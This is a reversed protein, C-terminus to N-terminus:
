SIKFEKPTVGYKSKFATSFYNPSSFGTAYAIESINLGTSKLMEKARELRINNIHDSVSIGLIAKTKRYLQVRSMHLSDALEEVSLSSDNFSDTIFNNLKKLFEQESVGFGGEEIKHINNTYYYRLKERNYLLSNIAQTLMRLNFPKTLYLDAGSQLAKIYSEQNDLATLIITPIHSTRLDRKLIECVEFGDKEPLNLDCVIIDPVIELASEITKKGDSTFVNYQGSFRDSLFELLELNDEIFLISYKEEDKNKNQVTSIVEFDSCDTDNIWELSQENIIEKDNLHGKGKPLSIVFETGNKSSVEIKGKHLDVFNKSLYLGIGSSNRYNNSGQYFAEFVNKMEKDPIGIGSDKFYIKVSGNQTEERIKISIEGNDPTFKFANSLLNFYVKDMLNRDLYLETEENTTSVTFNINRKKAEREFDNFIQKSFSYINTKSARIAFERDEIKRYDLLQNILRLLRKSNNHILDFEKNVTNSKNLLSDNLSEVSSLILTLPTKFEHSIGTFFNLRAQNVERIENATKELQNRQVTIKKNKIELQRKKKRISFTTYISYGTLSLILILTLSLIKLLNNQSYYKQDQLFITNLQQDIREQQQDIKDLQNKMIEANIRDIVITNLINSRPVTNNKHLELALRIAENGGTPYYITAELVNEEVLQIGGNPTNLGDVGIIKIHNELGKEKAIEWASLAMRDNHAFVYDIKPHAELIKRFPEKISEGEWSGDITAVINFNDHQSIIQSFGFSREFAPSSGALGKIEVIRTFDHGRKSVIYKAANRGVEINDAGLYATYNEGAIKRDVVLIPIGAKMSEKAVRVLPESQIPSVIIVDAKARILKEIDDIQNNVNDRADLITLDVGPHLSAEILMFKNMQKRWDDTTMGQSFGIKIRKDEQLQNCSIMLFLFFVPFLRGAKKFRYTKIFRGM